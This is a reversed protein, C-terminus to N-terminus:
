NGLNITISGRVLGDGGGSSSPSGGGTLTTTGSGQGYHTDLEQLSDTVADPTKLPTSVRQSVNDIMTTESLTPPILGSRVFPLTRQAGFLMDDPITIPKSPALGPSLETWFCSTVTVEGQGSASRVYAAGDDWNAADACLNDGARGTEVAAGKPLVYVLTRQAEDVEVVFDTGAVGAVAAKTHYEFKSEKGVLKTVFTRIKGFTLSFISATAQPRRRLTKITMDSSSGVRIKDGSDFVIELSGDVATKVRDGEVFTTGNEVAVLANDAGIVTVGGEVTRATAGIPEAFAPPACLALVAAVTAFFIPRM